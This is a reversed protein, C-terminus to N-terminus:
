YGPNQTLTPQGDVFSDDIQEQPIPFFEHKGAQFSAGSLHPRKQAEEVLYANVVEAAIGWRVLDFFRHGELAFELRREFRVAEWAFAKGATEFSVGADAYSQVFYNAAPTGDEFKVVSGTAARNRVLDVHSQAIALSGIEIECEAAWLLVDAYRLVRFNNAVGRWFTAFSQVLSGEQRQYYVNKLPSYPGYTGSKDRIWNKGPHVGWDLYPVGRRGVTWDLRPDIPTTVDPEFSETSNLYVGNEFDSKFDTANFTNFLPLGSNEDTQFANVLNQSAQFFGCCGSPAGSPTFPFALGEAFGGNQGESTGDNVSYQIEFLSEQNNNTEANYNDHYNEALSFRGSGIIANLLPLAAAYDQQFMKAKALFAQAAWKTPRGVEAQVEPLTNIGFQFDEEIKPWIDQDNPVRVDEANEDIYPVMNWMKKAEFHYYARLFRAEARIQAAKENDIAGNAEAAILVKLTQNCRNVGEYVHWWKGRFFDNSAIASFNEIDNGQPQDGPDSGKHADGATVSGYIWNSPAAHWPFSRTFSFPHELFGDIAAYAGILLGEVGEETALQEVTLAGQPKIRDLYGECSVLTSLVTIYIILFPKKM